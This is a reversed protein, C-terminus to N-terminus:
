WRYATLLLSELSTSASGTRTALRRPPRSHTRSNVIAAAAQSAFLVLVKEDDGTFEEGGAKESLLFNGVAVGRRRM